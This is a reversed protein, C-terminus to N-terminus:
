PCNKNKSDSLSLILLPLSCIEPVALVLIVTFSFTLLSPPPFTVVNCSLSVFLSLFILVFLFGHSVSLQKFRPIEKGTKLMARNEESSM